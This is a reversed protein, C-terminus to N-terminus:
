SIMSQFIIVHYKPAEAAYSHILQSAVRPCPIDFMGPLLLNPESKVLVAMIGKQGGM